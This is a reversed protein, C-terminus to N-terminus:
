QPRVGWALQSGNFVVVQIRDVFASSAQYSYDNTENFSGVRTIRLRIDGTSQCPALSGAGATFGVDIYSVPTPGLTRTVQACGGGGPLSASDCFTSLANAGDPSFYYRIKLASLSVPAYGNNVLKFVSRIQNDLPNLAGDVKYQAKLCVRGDTCGSTGNSTFVCSSCGQVQIPQACTQGCHNACEAIPLTSECWEGGSVNVHGDGCTRSTCDSDCSSTEGQAGPDCQECGSATGNGCALGTPETGWVLAGNQYLTIKPNLQHVTNSQYSYDNNENINRQDSWHIRFNLERFAGPAISDPGSLTAEVYTDVQNLAPNVSQVSFTANACVEPTGSPPFDCPTKIVAPTTCAATDDFRTFWYRLKLQNIPLPVPTQNKIRIQANVHNDTPQTGGKHEVVLGCTGPSSCATLGKCDSRCNSTLGPDCIEGAAPNVFGDPCSVSSCDADCTASNGATDCQEAGGDTNWRFGDGCRADLCAGVCRDNDSTNGDDCQEGAAANEHGDHCAVASCDADCQATDHSGGDCAEGAPINAHFDGCAPATCDADCGPSDGGDDCTEGVEPLLVGDGCLCTGCEAGGCDIGDEDLDQVANACHPAVCVDLDPGWGHKPGAAIGLACVLGTACEANSDCDGNGSSCPQEVTCDQHPESRVFSAPYFATLVDPKRQSPGLTQGFDDWAVLLGGAPAPGPLGVSGLLPPVAALAPFRQDGVSGPAFRPIRIEELVVLEV